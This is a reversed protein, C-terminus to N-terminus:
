TVVDRIGSSNPIRLRKIYPKLAAMLRNMADVLRGQIEDWESEPSRYGGPFAIRIRSAKRDDLREWLMPLGVASEIESKSSELQDFIAKNVEKSDKGRDIYVEASCNTNNVVYNFLLGSYSIGIWNLANPSLHAHSQADPRSILRTWWNLRVDESEALKRKQVGASKLEHSPGVIKTLLLAAPSDGIRVAEAKVLYFDASTSENLWAIAAVHEPRPTAVIWVAARAEFATLYTILKGLHDHDSKELQNEIIVTGLSTDKAVLDVSFTGAPQEREVDVLEIDLAENLVDINNALWQTFDYAEHQWVERLPVRRLKDINSMKLNGALCFLGIACFFM